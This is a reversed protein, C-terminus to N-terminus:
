RGNIHVVTSSARASAPGPAQASSPWRRGPSRAHTVIWEVVAAAVHHQAAAGRHRQAQSAAGSSCEIGSGLLTAHARQDDAIGADGGEVRLLWVCLRQGHLLPADNGDATVLLDHAVPAGFRGQDIRLAPAQQGAEVVAVRVQDAAAQVVVQFQAPIAHGAQRVGHGHQAPLDGDGGRRLPHPHHAAEGLM